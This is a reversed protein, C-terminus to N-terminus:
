EPIRAVMLFTAVVVLVALLWTVAKIRRFIAAYEPDDRAVPTSLREESPGLVTAGLVLIVVLIATPILVWGASWLDHDSALYAGTAFIVVIAPTIVLKGLTAQARHFFARQEPTADRIMRFWLPYALAGGFGVIAALIHLTVMVESLTVAVMTMAEPGHRRRDIPATADGVLDRVEQM